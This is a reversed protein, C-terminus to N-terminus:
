AKKAKAKKAEAAAERKQWIADLFENAESIVKPAFYRPGRQIENILHAFDTQLTHLETGKVNKGMGATAKAFVGSLYRVSKEIMQENATNQEAM